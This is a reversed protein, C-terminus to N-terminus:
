VQMPFPPSAEPGSSLRLCRPQFHQLLQQLRNKWPNNKNLFLIKYSNTLIIRWGLCSSIPFVFLLKLLVATEQTTVRRLASTTAWCRQYLGSTSEGTSTVLPFLPNLQIWIVQIHWIRGGFMSHWDGLQSTSSEGQTVVSSRGACAPENQPSFGTCMTPPVPLYLSSPLVARALSM